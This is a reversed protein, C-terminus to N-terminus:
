YSYYEGINGREYKEYLCFHEYMEFAPEGNHWIEIFDIWEGTYDPQLFTKVIRYESTHGGQSGQFFSHWEKDPIDKLNIVASNTEENLTIEIQNGNFYKKSLEGALTSLKDMVSVDSNVAIETIEEKMNEDISYLSLKVQSVEPKKAMEEQQQLNENVPETVPQKKDCSYLSISLATIILIALFKKM